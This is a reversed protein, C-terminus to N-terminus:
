VCVRIRVYVCVCVCSYVDESRHDIGCNEYLHGAEPGYVFPSLERVTHPVTCERRSLEIQLLSVRLLWVM